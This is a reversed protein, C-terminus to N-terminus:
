DMFYTISVCVYIYTSLLIRQAIFWINNTSEAYYLLVDRYKRLQIGCLFLIEWLCLAYTNMYKWAVPRTFVKLFLAHFQIDTSGYKITPITRCQKCYLSLSSIGSPKIYYSTLMCIYICWWLLANCICRLRIMVVININNLELASAIVSM